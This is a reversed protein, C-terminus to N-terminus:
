APYHIINHFCADQSSTNRYGHAQSADFRLGEGQNVRKWKKNLLVEMEGEIVIVYEIVGAEHASSLHECGPTLTIVFIECPSTKDFPFLTSVHIKKKTSNKKPKQSARYLTKQSSKPTEELFSSYSVHFGSAIKWLTAITPSSEEREIQGLMAKSVSTEEATKDLSWGREERLSKLRNAIQTSTKKM